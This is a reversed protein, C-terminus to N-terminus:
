DLDEYVIFGCDDCVEVGDKAYVTTNAHNCTDWSYDPNFRM